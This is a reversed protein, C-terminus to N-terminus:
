TLLARKPSHQAPAPKRSFDFLSEKVECVSLKAPTFNFLLFM